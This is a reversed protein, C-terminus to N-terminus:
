LSVFTLPDSSPSSHRRGVGVAHGGWLKFAPLPTRPVTNLSLGRHPEEDRWHFSAAVSAPEHDCKLKGRKESSGMAPPFHTVLLWVICHYPVHAKFDSFGPDSNLNWRKGLTQLLDGLRDLSWKQMSFALTLVPGGQPSSLGMSRTHARLAGWPGVSTLRTFMPPRHTWAQQAGGERLWSSKVGM